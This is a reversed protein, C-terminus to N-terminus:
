QLDYSGAGTAPTSRPTPPLGRQWTSRHPKKRVHGGAPRVAPQTQARFQSRSYDFEPRILDQRPQRLATESDRGSIDQWEGIVPGALNDAARRTQRSGYSQPRSRMSSQQQRLTQAASRGVSERPEPQVPVQLRPPPEPKVTPQLALSDLDVVDSSRFHRQAFGSTVPITSTQMRHTASGRRGSESRISDGSYLSELDTGPLSDNESWQAQQITGRGSPSTAEASHEREAIVRNPKTFYGAQQVKPQTRKEIPRAQKQQAQSLLEPVPGPLVVRQPTSALEVGDQGVYKAVITVRKHQSGAHDWPIWISYSDGITSQSLHSALEEPTVVYKRDPTQSVNGQTDDWGYVILSGNVQVPEDTERGYFVIRGGLGRVGRQGPRSMVTDSWVPIMKAPPEAPADDFTLRPTALKLSGCGPSVFVFCLAVMLRNRCISRPQKHGRMGM